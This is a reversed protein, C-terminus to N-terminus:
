VRMPMVACDAAFDPTEVKARCVSNVVNTGKDHKDEDTPLEFRISRADLAKAMKLLAELVPVGLHVAVNPQEKPWVRDLNPFTAGKGGTEALRQVVPMDGIEPVVIAVSVDGVAAVRITPLVPIKSKKQMVDLLTKLSTSSVLQAKVPDTGGNLAPFDGDAIRAKDTVRIAIHGDTAELTGTPQVQIAHLAYRTDDSTTIAKAALWAERRIVM